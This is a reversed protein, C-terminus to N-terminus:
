TVRLEWFSNDTGKGACGGGDEFGRRANFEEGTELKEEPHAGKWPECSETLSM